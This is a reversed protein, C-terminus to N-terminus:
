SYLVYKTKTDEDMDEKAKSKATRRAKQISGHLKKHEKQVLEKVAASEAEYIAATVERRVRLKSGCSTIGGNAIADDASQKVHDTYYM